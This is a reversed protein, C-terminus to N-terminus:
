RFFVAVRLASFAQRTHQNTQHASANSFLQDKIIDGGARLVINFTSGANSARHDAFKSHAIREARAVVAGSFLLHEETTLNVTIFYVAILDILQDVRFDIFNEFFSVIGCLFDEFLM